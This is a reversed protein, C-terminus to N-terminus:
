SEETECVDAAGGYAYIAAVALLRFPLPLLTKMPDTAKLRTMQGPTPMM